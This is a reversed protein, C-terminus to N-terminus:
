MIWMERRMGSENTWTSSGGHVRSKAVAVGDEDYQRLHCLLDHLLQGGTRELSLGLLLGLFAISQIITDRSYTKKSLVGPDCFGLGLGWLIELM